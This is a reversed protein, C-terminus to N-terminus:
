DSTSSSPAKSIRSYGISTQRHNTCCLCTSGAGAGGGVQNGMLSLWQLNTLLSLAEPVSGARLHWGPPWGTLKQMGGVMSNCGSTCALRILPLVSWGGQLNNESLDLTLLSPALAAWPGGAVQQLLSSRGLQMSLNNGQLELGTVSGVLPCLQMGRKGVRADIFSTTGNVSCCSVGFRCPRMDYPTEKHSAVAFLASTQVIRMRPQKGHAIIALVQPGAM